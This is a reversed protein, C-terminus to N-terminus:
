RCVKLNDDKLLRQEKMGGIPLNSVFSLSAEKRNPRHNQTRRRLGSPRHGKFLSDQGTKDRQLVTRQAVYIVKGLLVGVVVVGAEAVDAVAHLLQAPSADGLLQVHHTHLCCAPCRLWSSTLSTAESEALAETNLLIPWTLSSTVPGPTVRHRTHAPPPAETAM